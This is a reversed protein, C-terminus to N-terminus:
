DAASKPTEGAKPAVDCSGRTSKTEPKGNAINRAEIAAKTPRAVHEPLGPHAMDYFGKLALQNRKHLDQLREFVSVVAKVVQPDEANAKGEVHLLSFLWWNRQIGVSMRCYTSLSLGGFLVQGACLVSVIKDFVASELRFM